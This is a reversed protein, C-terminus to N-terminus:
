LYLLSIFATLEMLWAIGMHVIIGGLISRSYYAIIGLLTGGFFSSVTEGLPKGLHIYVYFVAAPLIVKPGGFKLFALILFGRFFLEINIFDLGYALEFLGLYKLDAANLVSYQELGWGKARPYSNMFDGTLAAMMLLPLMFCLMGFYPKLDFEKTTFGYFPMHKRDQILWVVLVTLYIAPARFVILAMLRAWYVPNDTSEFYEYFHQTWIGASSRLSFIGVGTIVLLWFRYNRLFPAPIKFVPYMLFALAFPVLYLLFYYVFMVPRGYVDWRMQKLDPMGYWVIVGAGAIAIMALFYKLSFEDVAFKKIYAIVKHLSKWFFFRIVFYEYVLLVLIAVPWAMWPKIAFWESLGNM